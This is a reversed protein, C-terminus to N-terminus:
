EDWVEVMQENKWVYKKGLHPLIKSLKEVFNKDNYSLELNNLERPRGLSVYKDEETIHKVARPNEKKVKQLYEKAKTEREEAIGKKSARKKDQDQQWFERAVDCLTKKNYKSKPCKLRHTIANAVYKIVEDASMSERLYLREKETLENRALENDEFFSTPAPPPRNGIGVKEKEKTLTEKTPISVISTPTCFSYQDLKNSFPQKETDNESVFDSDEIHLKYFVQQEGNRGITRKLILGKRILSKVSKVVTARSRGTKKILQTLSIRDWEKNGWGITQRIVVQLVAHEGVTKLSPMVHDYYDNPTQTYNPRAFRFSKTTSSDESSNIQTQSNDQNHMLNRSVPKTYRMYSGPVINNHM